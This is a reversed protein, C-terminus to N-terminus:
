LRRHVGQRRTIVQRESSVLISSERARKARPVNGTSRDVDQRESSVM